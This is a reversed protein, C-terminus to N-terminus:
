DSYKSSFLTMKTYKVIVSFTHNKFNIYNVAYSSSKSTSHPIFVTILIIITIAFTVRLSSSWIGSAQAVEKAPAAWAQIVKEGCCGRDTALKSEQPSAQPTKCASQFMTISKEYRNIEKSDTDTIDVGNL